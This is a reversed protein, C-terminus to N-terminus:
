CICYTWGVKVAGMRVGVGGLSENGGFLEGGWASLVKETRITIHDEYAGLDGAFLQVELRRKMGPAVEGSRFCVTMVNRSGPVQKPKCVQFKGTTYGTNTLVCTVRFTCDKSVTGFDVQGCTLLSPSFHSHFTLTILSIHASQPFKL